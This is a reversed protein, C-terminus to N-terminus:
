LALRSTPARGVTPEALDEVAHLLEEGYAALQDRHEYAMIGLGLAAGLPATTPSFMLVGAVTKAAGLQVAGDDDKMSGDWVQKLGDVMTAAGFLPAAVAKSALTAAGGGALAAGEAIEVTGEVTHGDAAKKVGDLALSVGQYAAAAGIAKGFANAVIPGAKSAGGKALAQAEVETAVAAPKPQPEIPKPRVPAHTAETPRPRVDTRAKPEPLQHGPETARAGREPSADTAAQPGGSPHRASPPHRDMERMMDRLDDVGTRRVVEARDLPEIAGSPEPPASPARRVGTARAGKAGEAAREMELRRRLEEAANGGCGVGDTRM